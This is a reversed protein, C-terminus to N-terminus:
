IMQFIMLIQLQHIERMKEIIYCGESPMTSPLNAIVAAQEDSSKIKKAVPKLTDGYIECLHKGTKFAEKLIEQCVETATFVALSEPWCDPHHDDKPDKNTIIRGDLVTIGRTEGLKKYGAWVYM